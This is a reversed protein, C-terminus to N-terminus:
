KKSFSRILSATKEVVESWKFRKITELGNASFKQRLNQDDLLKNIAMLWAELKNYPALLGNVGDEVVERNGGVPTTIVPLGSRMANLVSHPLGEYNTNLVFITARAFIKHSAEESVRGRFIINETLGLSGASEKLKAEEPGDGLIELIINSRSEKLEKMARILMAVGKWAVLRGAYVLTPNLPAERKPSAAFFDVANYIVTIREARVGILGAVKAMFNSVAIVADANILIKKRRAKLKEIREDYKIKQFDTIDDETWGAGAAMEWASDGAFRIIYKKGNLKKILYAFYGVSYTDTVYLIDAWRSLIWLHWFYKFYGLIKNQARSIRYIQGPETREAYTIVRIEFDIKSLSSILAELMTAPGGIDPPYIGTAILIRMKGNGSKSNRNFIFFKYVLYSEVAILGSVIFQALMYWVKLGDVMVYMLIINIVFNILAVALYAGMQKYMAEKDGDRFTWFKQLFFSIFFALVFALGASILYWVGLVDTFFYLLSLDVFASTGGAILYKVIQKHKQLFNIM